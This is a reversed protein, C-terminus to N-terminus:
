KWSKAVGHVIAWWHGRGNLEGFLKKDDEFTGQYSLQHLIIRCHMLGHNLEQTLFNGQFLSLSGVGTNMPKGPPEAPLSHAQSTPSSPEIGPNPLDGPPPCPLVNWYEQRSFEMSLPAQHICDMLSCLASSVVSHSLM